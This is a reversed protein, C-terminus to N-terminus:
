SRVFYAVTEHTLVHSFGGTVLFSLCSALLANSHYELVVRHTRQLTATAGLLVEHESGEVDIKLLDINGSTPELIEDLTRVDVKYERRSSAARPDAILTATTTTGTIDLWGEARERGAACVFVRVPNGNEGASAQLRAATEPNPEIALVTAGKSAQLLSFFGVNAGVDVVLWGPKASFGPAREYCRDAWIEWFVGLEGKGPAVRFSTKRLRIWTEAPMVNGLGPLLMLFSQAAYRALTLKGDWDESGWLATLLLM